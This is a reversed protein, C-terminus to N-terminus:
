MCKSYKRRVKANFPLVLAKKEAFNILYAEKDWNNASIKDGVTVLGPRINHDQLLSLSNLSFLSGVLSFFFSDVVGHIAADSFFNEM